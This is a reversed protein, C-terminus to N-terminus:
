TVFKKIGNQTIGRALPVARAMLSIIVCASTLILFSTRVGTKKTKPTMASGFFFRFFCPDTGVGFSM